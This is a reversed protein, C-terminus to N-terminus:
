FTVSVSDHIPRIKICSLYGDTNSVGAKYNNFKLLYIASNM